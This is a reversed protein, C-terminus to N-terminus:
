FPKQLVFVFDDSIMKFGFHQELINELRHNTSGLNENAIIGGPMLLESIAKACAMEQEPREFNVGLGDYTFVGASAIAHVKNGLLSIQTSDRLDIYVYGDAFCNPDIIDSSIFCDCDDIKALGAHVERGEHYGCGLSLVIPAYPITAWKPNDCIPDFMGEGKSLDGWPCPVQLDELRKLFVVPDVGEPLRVALAKLDEERYEPASGPHNLMAFILLFIGYTFIANKDIFDKVFLWSCTLIYM